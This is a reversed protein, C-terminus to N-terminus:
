LYRTLRAQSLIKSALEEVSQKTSDLYPIGNSTFIQRGAAVEQRCKNLDAYRSGPRREARIQALRQPSVSLGYLKSQHKALPAPLKDDLLDEDVLPYNATFVGYHLALYLSVPTKGSRSVGVLIVDADAYFRTSIGDDNNLTFNVADIRRQYDRGRRSSFRGSTVHSPDQGLESALPNIFGALCDLTFATCNEKLQASLAENSFTYFVLPRAPAGAQNIEAIATQLKEGTDVFSITRESFNLNDFQALVSRGISEVTIGTSDSIYFVARTDAAANGATDATSDATM